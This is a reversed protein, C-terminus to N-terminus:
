IEKKLFRPYHWKWGSRPIEPILHEEYLIKDKLYDQTTKINKSLNDVQTKNLGFTFKQTHPEKKSIVKAMLTVVYNGEKWFFSDQLFESLELFEPTIFILEAFHQPDTKRIHSIKRNLNSDLTHKKLEYSFDRFGITKEVLGIVNVKIAIAPQNKRAEMRDGSSSTTEFGREDLFKWRFEHKEGAEHKVELTIEEILADKKSTSIAFTPNLIPGYFSYGIEVKDNQTFRLQPKVFRFYLFIAIQPIWAAAGIIAVWAVWDMEVGTTNM